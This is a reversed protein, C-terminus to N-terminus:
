KSESKTSTTESKTSAPVEAVSGQQPTNSLAALAIGKGVPTLPGCGTLTVSATAKGELPANVQCSTILAKGKYYNSTSPTWGGEPVSYGDEAKSAADANGQLSFIVDVKERNLMLQLLDSTNKGDSSDSVVNDSQVSWDIPGAENDKFRGSGNDKTSTDITAVNVTLSHNTAFALSVGGIFLMLDAGNYQKAAM